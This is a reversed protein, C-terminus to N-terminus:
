TFNGKWWHLGAGLLSTAGVVVLSMAVAQQAPIGAVYVFVPLTLISGGGGLAGLTLGILLAFALSIVAGTTM